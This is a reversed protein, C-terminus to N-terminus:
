PGSISELSSARTQVWNLDPGFASPWGGPQNGLPVRTVPRDRIAPDTWVHTEAHGDAFNFSGCEGHYGAPLDGWGTYNAMDMRLFGDNISDAHEDLFVFAM